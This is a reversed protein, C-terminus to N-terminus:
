VNSLSLVRVLVQDSASMGGTWKTDKRTTDSRSGSDPDDQPHPREQLLILPTRFYSSSTGSTGSVYRFRGLWFQLASSVCPLMFCRDGASEPCCVRSRGRGRKCSRGSGRNPFSSSGRAHPPLLSVISDSCVDKDDGPWWLHWRLACM